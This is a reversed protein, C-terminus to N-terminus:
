FLEMKSKRQYSVFNICYHKKCKAFSRCLCLSCGVCIVLPDLMRRVVAETHCKIAWVYLTGLRLVFLIFLSKHGHSRDKSFYMHYPSKTLVCYYKHLSGM